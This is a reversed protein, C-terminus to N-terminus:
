NRDGFNRGYADKLLVTMLEFRKQELAAPHTVKGKILHDVTMVAEDTLRDANKTMIRFDRPSGKGIETLYDRYDEGLREM